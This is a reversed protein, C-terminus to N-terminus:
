DAHLYHYFFRLTRQWALTAADADYRAQSTDNHFGHGSDPYMHLSYAVKHQDLLRRFEPIGANVREDLGGYHMMLPVSVKAIQEESLARGYFCVAAAVAPEEVACQM